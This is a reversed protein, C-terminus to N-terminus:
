NRTVVTHQYYCLSLNCPQKTQKRKLLDLPKTCPNLALRPETNELKHHETQPKHLFVAVTLSHTSCTISKMKISLLKFVYVLFDGELLYNLHNKILLYGLKHFNVKTLLLDNYSITYLLIYFQCGNQSLKERKYQSYVIGTILTLAWNKLDVCATKKVKISTNIRKTM